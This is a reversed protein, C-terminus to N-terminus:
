QAERVTESHFLLTLSIELIESNEYKANPCIRFSQFRPFIKRLKLVSKFKRALHSKCSNKLIKQVTESCFLLTLCIRFSPFRPFIKEAEPVKQVTHSYKSFNAYLDTIVPILLKSHSAKKAFSKITKKM